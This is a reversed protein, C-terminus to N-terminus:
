QLALVMEDPMCFPQDPLHLKHVMLGHGELTAKARSHSCHLEPDHDEDIWALM